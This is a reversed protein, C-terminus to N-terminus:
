RHISKFFDIAMSEMEKMDKTIEGDNKRLLKITNKKKRDVAKRHFYKMTRDGEKLWAVRSCQMWMLKERYLLEDMKQRLGHMEQSESGLDQGGLEEM